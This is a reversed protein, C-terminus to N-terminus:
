TRLYRTCLWHPVPVGYRRSPLMQYCLKIPSSIWNNLTPNDNQKCFADGVSASLTLRPPV